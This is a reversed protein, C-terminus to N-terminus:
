LYVLVELIYVASSDLTDFDRSPSVSAHMGRIVRWLLRNARFRYIYLFRSFCWFASQADPSPLPDNIALVPATLRGTVNPVCAFSMGGTVHQLLRRSRAVVQPLVDQEDQNDGGCPGPRSPNSTVDLM